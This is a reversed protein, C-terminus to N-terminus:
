NNKITENLEILMKLNNNAHVDYTPIDCVTLFGTKLLDKWVIYNKYNPLRQAALPLPNQNLLKPLDGM